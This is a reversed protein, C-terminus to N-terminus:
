GVYKEVSLKHPGFSQFRHDKIQEPLFITMPKKLGQGIPVLHGVQTLIETAGKCVNLLQAVTLRDNWDYDIGSLREKFVESQGVSIIRMGMQKLRDVHDQMEKVNPTFSFDSNNKHLHATAPEKIVAYPHVISVFSYEVSTWEFEFDIWPLKCHDLIDEYQGKPSLRRSTYSLHYDPPPCSEFDIIDCDLGRFVIPYKTAVKIERGPNQQILYRVIPWAYVADGLGMLTKIILPRSTM